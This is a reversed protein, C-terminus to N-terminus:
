RLPRAFEGLGRMREVGDLWSPAVPPAGDMSRRATGSPDVYFPMDEPRPPNMYPNSELLARRSTISAVGEPNVEIIRKRVPIDDVYSSLRRLLDDINNPMRIGPM